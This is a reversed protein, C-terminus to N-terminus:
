KKVKTSSPKKHKKRKSTTKSTTKPNQRKPPTTPSTPQNQIDKFVLFGYYGIAGLFALLIISSSITSITKGLYFTKPNFVFEIEHQGPPIKMARLAYNARIHDVPEGDITAQWGKDPGYWIESFM